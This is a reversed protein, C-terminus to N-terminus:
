SVGPLITGSSRFAAPSSMTVDPPAEPLVTSRIETPPDGIAIPCAAIAADRGTTIAESWDGMGIVPVILAVLGETSAVPPATGDSAVYIPMLM